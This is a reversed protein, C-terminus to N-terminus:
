AHQNMRFVIEPDWLLRHQNYKGVGEGKGRRKQSVELFALEDLLSRVRDMSLPDTSVQECVTTYSDRVKTTRFWKQEPHNESLNALGLLLYRSHSPLGSILELLRETEASARADNLHEETIKSANNKDAQQGAYRLLRIAKRADGHEKASLAAARPIVGETLAGDVFADTRNRLIERLQDADYPEFVVETHGFSSKTRENMQDRYNIKNSIALVGIPIDVSRDEGARSLVMLIDDDPLNDVEDLIFLAGDYHENLVDWLRSYYEGSSLGRDPFSIQSNSPNVKSGLSSLVDTNGKSQQCNNYATALTVDEEAATEKARSVVHKAVLSKGSGTKGYILCSNPPEGIIVPGIEEGVRRIQNDRGVIREEGPVYDIQLFERNAFVTRRESSTIDGFIDQSAKGSNEEGM